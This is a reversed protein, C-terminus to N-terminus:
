KGIFDNLFLFYVTRRSSYIWTTLKLGTEPRYSSGNPRYSNFVSEPPKKAGLVFDTELPRPRRTISNFERKLNSLYNLTRWRSMEKPWFDQLKRVCLRSNLYFYDSAFCFLLFDRNLDIFKTGEIGSNRSFKLTSCRQADMNKNFHHDTNLKFSFHVFPLAKFLTVSCRQTRLIKAKELSFPGWPEQFGLLTLFTPLTNFNGISM